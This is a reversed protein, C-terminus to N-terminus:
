TNAAVADAMARFTISSFIAFTWTASEPCNQLNKEVNYQDKGYHCTQSKAYIIEVLIFLDDVFEKSFFFFLIFSRQSVYFFLGL